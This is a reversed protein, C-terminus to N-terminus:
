VLAVEVTAVLNVLVHLILPVTVTGTKERAWGFLIGLLFVFSIDYLDYQVHLSGWIVTPLGIALVAGARTRRLGPFAFGRFVLEEWLPAAVIVALWLLPLYGASSYTEVMFDPVIPRDLWTSLLDWTTLLVATVAVWLLVTRPKVPDLALYGRLTAGRRLGVFIAVFALAAVASAFASLALFDGDAALQEVFPEFDVSADGTLQWLLALLIAAFQAAFVSGVIAVVFGVTAWPGWPAPPPPAPALDPANPEM